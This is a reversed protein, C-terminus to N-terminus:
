KPFALKHLHVWRNTLSGEHLKVAERFSALGADGDKPPPPKLIM